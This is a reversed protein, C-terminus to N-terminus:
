VYLGFTGAYFDNIYYLPHGSGLYRGLMGGPINQGIIDLVMSSMQKELDSRDLSASPFFGDDDQMRNATSAHIAAIRCIDDEKVCLASVRMGFM